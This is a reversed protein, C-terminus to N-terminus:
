EADSRGSPIQSPTERECEQKLFEYFRRAGYEIAQGLALGAVRSFSGVFELNSRLETVDDSQAQFVVESLM